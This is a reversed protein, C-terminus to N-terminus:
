ALAEFTMLMFAFDLAAAMGHQKSDESYKEGWASHEMWYLGYKACTLHSEPTM